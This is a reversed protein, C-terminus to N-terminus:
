ANLHKDFVNKFLTKLEQSAEGELNSTTNTVKAEVDGFSGTVHGTEFYSLPNEEAGDNLQANIYFDEDGKFLVYSDEIKDIQGQIRGIFGGLYTLFYKTASSTTVKGKTMKTDSYDAEVVHGEEDLKYEGAYISIDTVALCKSVNITNLNNTGIFGGVYLNYEDLATSTSTTAKKSVIIESDASCETILGRTNCNGVFGGIALFGQQTYYTAALIKGDVHCNKVAIGDKLGNDELSGALLGVSLKLRAQSMDLTVNEVKSDEITVTLGRGVLGGFYSVSSTNAMYALSSDKVTCNSIQTREAYGVLLGCKTNGRQTTKFSVGADAINLNKITASLTYAFLGTFETSALKFNKITKGNGDFTGSFKTTSTFITPLTEGAFDLDNDLVYYSTPDDAMKAFEDTTKIHVADEETQSTNNTTIEHTKIETDTGGYSVFLKFRYKTSAALGKFTISAAFTSKDVSLKEMVNSYAEVGDEVKYQKFYTSASGSSLNDNKDFRVELTVSKSTIASTTITVNKETIGSKNGGCSALTLIGIFAVAIFAIIKKLKM